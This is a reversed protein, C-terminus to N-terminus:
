ILDENEPDDTQGDFEPIIEEPEATDADVPEATEANPTIRVIPREKEDPNLREAAAAPSTRAPTSSIEVVDADQWEETTKMGMSLEPAFTRVFFAAARYRGMLETMTPWKSDNKTYWGERVAMEVTVTPGTLTEGSRIDKASAVFSFDQIEIERTEKRRNPKEGVWVDYKVKKKGLPKVTYQIPTFRGCTNVTAVLFASGFSPRGQIINLNQMVMLPSAGIRNAMELAVLCNSVNGRYTQPVLDSKALMMGVRQANEFAAMDGYISPPNANSIKTLENAM